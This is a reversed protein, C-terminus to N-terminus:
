RMPQAYRTNATAPNPNGRAASGERRHKRHQPTRQALHARATDVTAPSTLGLGGERRQKRHSPTRPALKARATDVTAPTGTEPTVM